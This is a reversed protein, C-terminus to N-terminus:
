RAKCVARVLNEIAESVTVVEEAFSFHCIIYGSYTIFPGLEDSKGRKALLLWCYRCSLEAQKSWKFLDLCSKFPRVVM